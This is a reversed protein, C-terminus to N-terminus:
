HWRAAAPRSDLEIMEQLFEQVAPMERQHSLVFAENLLAEEEDNFVFELIAEARVDRPLECSTTCPTKFKNSM